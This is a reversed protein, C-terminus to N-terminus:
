FPLWPTILAVADCFMGIPAPTEHHVALNYFDLAAVAYCILEVERRAIQVVPAEGLVIQQYLKAYEAIIARGTPDVANVPDGGAYLYKHLSKPDYPTGDEPDRSLFRGTQPNYYRARLYYLGLDTDFQEGRYLYNNPTTGTSNLLNGFADYNYTDTISASVNTLQRVSGFGDYGYFSPTWTGNIPQDESIRQLGYTYQREVAGNVVEEVVQAYGTPNLDDVLYQTTVGNAIKAVRNGFADYIMTVAGGNMSVLHNESDYAFTKGGTSTTNGNADYSETAIWDDLNFGALTVSQVGPLSSNTSTRNGVPDLGYSVSGNAGGTDSSITENTLRYIGDYNWTLTRGSQETAGTRNGTAGLTYSYGAVPTSSTTTATNLSTLRNLSDYQITSQLQNPYTVTVLNSASDYAYTTTNQGAPLNNDVVTSLRNLSDYTYSMSAGHLSSSYISAVNGALDYTYNLM